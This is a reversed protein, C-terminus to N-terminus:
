KQEIEKDGCNLSIKKTKINAFYIEEWYIGKESSNFIQKFYIFINNFIGLDFPRIKSNNIIAIGRQGLIKNREKEFLKLYPCKEENFIEYTTQNTILLYLHYVFIWFFIIEILCMSSFFLVFFYLMGESELNNMIILIAYSSYTLSINQFFLFLLFLFRNKEGVCGALLWFHHDFGKVCKQCKPCHITRLPLKPIKCIDCGYNIILNFAVIPSSEVNIISENKIENKPEKLENNQEKEKIVFGPKNRALYLFFISLFSSIIQYHHYYSYFFSLNSLKEYIIAINYPIFNLFLYLLYYLIESNEM